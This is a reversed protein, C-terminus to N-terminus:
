RFATTFSCDFFSSRGGSYLIKTTAAVPVGSASFTAHCVVEEPLQDLGFVHQTLRINYWGLDGLAGSPELAPDMRINTALFNEDGCFSFGSVIQHAAGFSPSRLQALMSQLRMHHSFMTGDIFQVGADACVALMAEAEELSRAVPKEVWVHKKARACATVWELHLACPLPIYAAEVDPAAVLEEYTCARASPAHKKAWAEAKEKDRSAVAVVEHGAAVIARVNKGAISAASLVGFRM